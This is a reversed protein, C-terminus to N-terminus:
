DGVTLTVTAGAGSIATIEGREFVWPATTILGLTSSAATLDLTGLPIWKVADNSGSVVVTASVASAGNLVAQHARVPLNPSFVFANGVSVTAVANLLRTLQTYATQTAAQVPHYELEIVLCTFAVLIALAKNLRAKM